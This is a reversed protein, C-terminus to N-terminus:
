AFIGDAALADYEAPSLGLLGQFVAQNHQGLTPGAREPRAPTESLVFPPAMLGIEGLGPHPARRWTGRHRLQPDDFLETVSEVAAARLGRARLAQVVSERTRTRTWEAIGRDVDAERERRGAASALAADRAWAPDDM